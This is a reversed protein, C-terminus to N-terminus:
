HGFYRRSEYREIAAEAKREAAERLMYSQIEEGIREKDKKGMKRELWEAIRGRRDLLRWDCDTYGQYDWDSSWTRHNPRQRRYSEVGILCPIGAVRAPIEALYGMQM